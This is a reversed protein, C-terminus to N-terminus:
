LCACQHWAGLRLVGRRPLAWDLRGMADPWFYTEAPSLSMGFDLSNVQEATFHSAWADAPDLDLKGLTVSDKM